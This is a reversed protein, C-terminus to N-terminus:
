FLATFSLAVFDGGRYDDGSGATLEM